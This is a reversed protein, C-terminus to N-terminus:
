HLENKRGENHLISVFELYPYGDKGVKGRYFGEKLQTDEVKRHSGM